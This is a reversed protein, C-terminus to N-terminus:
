QSQMASLYFLVGTYNKVAVCPNVISFALHPSEWM